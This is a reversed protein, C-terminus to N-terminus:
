KDKIKCILLVPIATQSSYFTSKSETKQNSWLHIATQNSYTESEKSMWVQYIKINCNKLGRIKLLSLDAKAVLIEMLKSAM